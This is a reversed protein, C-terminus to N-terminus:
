SHILKFVVRFIVVLTLIGENTLYVFHVCKWSRIKFGSHMHLVKKFNIYDGASFTLVVYLIIRYICLLTVNEYNRRHNPVSKLASASKVNKV